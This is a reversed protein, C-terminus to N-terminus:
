MSSLENRAMSPNQQTLIDIRESQFAICDFSDKEGIPATNEKEKGSKGWGTIKKLTSESYKKVFSTIFLIGQQVYKPLVVLEACQSRNEFEKKDV